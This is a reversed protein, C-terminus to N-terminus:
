VVGALWHTLSQYPRTSVLLTRLPLISLALLSVAYAAHLRCGGIALAWMWASLRVYFRSGATDATAPPADAHRAADTM